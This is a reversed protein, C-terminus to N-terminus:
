LGMLQAQKDFNPISRRIEDFTGSELIRGNELYIVQDANAVTSLRHAIIVLTAHSRLKSIAQTVENETAGDLSSTAEDFVIIKPKTYMARAIGLRQRQGGSLGIGGEGLKTEIGNPLSDVFEWLQAIQLAERVYQKNILDEDYGLAINNAISGETVMVNQPVYAVAGPWQSIASRVPEGSVFIQGKRPELVGLMIDVLTTKGAGTPGVIALSTGPPVELNDIIIDEKADRNYSFEIETVKISPTFGEHIFNNEISTNALTTSKLQELESITELTLESMGINSKILIAGNQLRLLAPAIRTGAALFIALSAVAHAADSVLFQVYSIIAAGVVVTIELAYKSISPMFSNIAQFRAIEIKTANVKNSYYGIRDKIYIERFGIILENILRNSYISKFSLQRGISEAKAHMVFYLYATVLSFLLISSLAIAPDIVLIGASIIILLSIDAIVSTATGLIGIAISSVGSGLIYQTQATSRKQIELMGKKLIQNLLKSSIEASKDSLFILVRWTLFISLLTRAVLVFAAILGLFTVQKQFSYQSLNLIDLIKTINENPPQSQIGRVGLAGIIGILAVGLLDFFGMFAQILVVSLYKIRDPKSLIGLCERFISFIRM